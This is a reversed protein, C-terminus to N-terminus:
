LEFSGSQNYLCFDSNILPEKLGGRVRFMHRNKMVYKEIETKERLRSV